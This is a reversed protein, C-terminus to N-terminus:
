QVCFNRVARHKCFTFNYFILIFINYDFMEPCYLVAFIHRDLPYLSPIAHYALINFKRVAHENSNRVARHLKEIKLLSKM